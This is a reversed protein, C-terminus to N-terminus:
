ISSARKKAKKLINLERKVDIRKLEDVRYKKRGYDTTNRLKNIYGTREKYNEDDIWDVICYKWSGQMETETVVGYRRYGRWGNYVVDGAKM